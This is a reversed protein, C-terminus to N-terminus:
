HIQTVLDTVFIISCKSNLSLPAHESLTALEDIKHWFDAGGTVKSDLGSESRGKSIGSTPATQGM